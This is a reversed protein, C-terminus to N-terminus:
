LPQFTVSYFSTLHSTVLSAEVRNLIEGMTEDCISKISVQSLMEEFSDNSKQHSKPTVSEIANQGVLSTATSNSELIEELEEFRNIIYEALFKTLKIQPRAKLIGKLLFQVILKVEPHNKLYAQNERMVKYKYEILKEKQLDTLDELNYSLMGKPPDCPYFDLYEPQHESNDVM